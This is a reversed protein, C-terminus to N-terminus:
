LTQWFNLVFGVGVLGQPGGLFEILGDYRGGALVTGARTRSSISHNFCTQRGQRGMETNVFEFITHSYYDLGRVLRPNLIYEIGCDKLLGKVQFHYLNRVTMHSYTDPAKKSHICLCVEEFHDRASSTLSDDLLPASEIIEEDEIDKSDLIRLVSGRELRNQVLLM